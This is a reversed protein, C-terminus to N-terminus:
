PTGGHYRANAPRATPRDQVLRDALCRVIGAPSVTQHDFFGDVGLKEFVENAYRQAYTPPANRGPLPWVVSVALPRHRGHMSRWLASWDHGRPSRIQRTNALPAAPHPPRCGLIVIVKRGRTRWRAQRDLIALAEDLAGEVDYAHMPAADALLDWAEAPSAFAQLRAVYNSELARGSSVTHQYDGYTISGVRLSGRWRWAQEAERIMEQAFSLRQSVSEAAGTMDILCVLDVGGVVGIEVPLRASGNEAVLLDLWARAHDGEALRQKDVEIEIETMGPAFVAPSVTLWPHSSGISGSARSASEIVLRRPEPPRLPGIEGFDLYPLRPHVVVYRAVPFLRLDDAPPAPTLAPLVATAQWIKDTPAGFRDHLLRTEEYFRALPPLDRPGQFAALRDAPDGTLGRMVLDAVAAPITADHARPDPAPGLRAAAVIDAVSVGAWPPQGTLLMFLVAAVGYLDALVSPAGGALRAPDTFPAAEDKIPVMDELAREDTLAAIEAAGGFDVIQTTQDDHLINAPYAGDWVYGAKHVHAVASAVRAVIELAEGLSRARAVPLPEGGRRMAIYEVRDPTPGGSLVLAINPHSQFQGAIRAERAFASASPPDTALLRKIAVPRVGVPRGGLHEVAEQVITAAGRHLVRGLRFRSEVASETAGGVM